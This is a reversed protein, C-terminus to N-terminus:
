NNASRIVGGQEYRVRRTSPLAVLILFLTLLAVGGFILVQSEGFVGAAAGGFAEGLPLLATSGM